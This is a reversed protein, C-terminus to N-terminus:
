PTATCWARLCLEEADTIRFGTDPDRFPDQSETAFHAALMIAVGAQGEIPTRAIEAMIIAVADHATEVAQELAAHKTKRELRKRERNFEPTGYNAPYDRIQELIAASARDEITAVRELEAAALVYQRWLARLPADEEAHATAVFPVVATAGVALAAVGEAVFCSVDDL